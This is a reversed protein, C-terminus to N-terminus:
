AGAHAHVPEYSFLVSGRPFEDAAFDIVNM